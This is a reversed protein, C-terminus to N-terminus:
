DINRALLVGSASAMMLGITLGGGTGISYLNKISTEFKKNLVIENGYMKIEPGYLLNDQNAFGPIVKDVKKIFNLINVMTRYDLIYSLDGPYALSFTPVVSNNKIKETTTAQHNLLDGLKQIIPGSGSLINAKEGINMAYESSSNFTEDFKYSVVIALNTNNSKKNKYSHGNVLTCGNSYSEPTVFGSPNQCYTRVKDYYPEIKGIFKGEYMLKNVKSMISNPLEYRIGIDVYGSRTRINYRKCLQETWIFGDVGAALIVKNGYYKQQNSCLVGKVKENDIILDTVETEFLMDVYKNLYDQFKKYLEHSKETGLHRIPVDILQLGNEEAIKQMNNIEKINNIGFLENNAGFKLYLEDVYKLVQVIEENSYYKKIYSDEKGGIYLDNQNKNYSSLHYSLLKGDSFAGAGSFGGIINCTPKCNLCKDSKSIPCKREEIRKGKEIMLIKKNKSKKLMEYVFFISSPGMGILIYDYNNMNEVEKMNKIIVDMNKM